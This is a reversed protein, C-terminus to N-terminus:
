EKLASFERVEKEQERRQRELGELLRELRLEEESTQRGKLQKKVLEIMQDLGDLDDKTVPHRKSHTNVFVPAAAPLTQRRGREDRVTVVLKVRYLGAAGEV